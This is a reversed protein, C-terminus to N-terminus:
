TCLVLGSGKKGKLFQCLWTTPHTSKCSCPFLALCLIMRVDGRPRVIRVVQRWRGCVSDFVVASVPRHKQWKIVCESAEELYMIM